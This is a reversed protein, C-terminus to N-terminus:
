TSTCFARLSKGTNMGIMGAELHELLRWTRSVNRTFFYSALGMSTDNAKRVVEEETEFKYLGLVPGFIEEQTMLMDSTMGSIITPEFFHGELTEPQRGGCLVMGGKSVADAVLKKVKELGRSTTLPGM